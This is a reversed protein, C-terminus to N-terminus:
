KRSVSIEETASRADDNDGLYEATVDFGRQCVVKKLQPDTIIPCPPLTYTAYAQTADAPLPTLPLVIRKVGDVAWNSMDYDIFSLKVKGTPTRGKVNISFRTEVTRLPHSPAYTLTTTTAAKGTGSAAALIDGHLENTAMATQGGARTSGLTTWNSVDIFAIGTPYGPYHHVTERVYQTALLRGGSLAGKLGTITEDTIAGLGPQYTQMLRLAARNGTDVEVLSVSGNATITGVTFDTAANLYARSGDTNFLPGGPRLRYGTTGTAPLSLSVLTPTLTATNLEVYKWNYGTGAGTVIAKDGAPSVAVSGPTFGPAAGALDVNARLNGTATDFVTVQQTSGTLTVYLTKDDPSLAIGTATGTLSMARTPARTTLDVVQVKGEALLAYALTGTSNVVFNSVGTLAITAALTDTRADIVRLGASTAVYVTQTPANAVVMAPLEGMFTSLAIRKTEARTAVDFVLLDPGSMDAVYAFPAAWASTALSLGALAAALKGIRM